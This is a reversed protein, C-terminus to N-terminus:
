TCVGDVEFRMESRCSSDLILRYLELLRRWSQDVLSGAHPIFHRFVGGATQMSESQGSYFSPYNGEAERPNRM